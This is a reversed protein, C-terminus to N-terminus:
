FWMVKVPPEILKLTKDELMKITEKGYEPETLITGILTNLDAIENGNSPTNYSYNRYLKINAANIEAITEDSLEIIVLAEVIKM